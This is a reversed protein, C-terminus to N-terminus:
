QKWRIGASTIGSTGGRGTSSTSIVVHEYEEAAVSSLGANFVISRVHEGRLSVPALEAIIENITPAPIFSGAGVQSKAEDPEIVMERVKEKETSVKLRIGKRVLYYGRKDPPGFKNKLDTTTQASLAPAVLLLMVGVFSELHLRQTSM